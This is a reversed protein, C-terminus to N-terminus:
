SGLAATRELAPPQSAILAKYWKASTKLIRQQTGFEIFVIGFRRSYGEAWEFNDMLSWVYYGRLDIGEDILERAATFHQRLYEVREPDRVEGDPGLYDNYTAGNETVYLPLETYDCAVRRLVAAFGDPRVGVGYDTM